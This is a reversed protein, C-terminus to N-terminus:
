CGRTGPARVVSKPLLCPECRVQRRSARGADRRPRSDPGRCRRAGPARSAGDRPTRFRMASMRHAARADPEKPLGACADCDDPAAGADLEKPLASRAGCWPCSAGCRTGEPDRRVAERKTRSRCRVGFGRRLPRSDPWKPRAKPSRGASRHPAGCRAGKPLSASTSGGDREASRTLPAPRDL